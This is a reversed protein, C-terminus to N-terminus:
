TYKIMQYVVDTRLVIRTDNGEWPESDHLLRHNFVVAQGTKPLVKVRVEDQRAQRDWDSFKRRNFPLADQADRIFRTAGNKSTTLYILLSKLTRRGDGYEYPADYHAILSCGPEYRIFRFLPNIGVAKWVSAGQTDMMNESIVFPSVSSLMRAWLLNALSLNYTSARLSGIKDGAKFGPRRGNIGVPLWDQKMAEDMLWIAEKPTLINDILSIDAGLTKSITIPFAKDFKNVLHIPLEFPAVFNGSSLAPHVPVRPGYQWGGPVASEMIDLHVAPSGVNYKHANYKHLKELRAAMTDYQDIETASWGRTLHKKERESLCLISLYLEVFDYPAGFVAEDTRGDYMDGSPIAKIITEPLGLAQATKVVESKHLDSILQVDVMGDSAKGFYGLYAGEDRNTTGVVIASHGQETLLSTAYYLAPTRVYSVLQGEAWAKGKKGL